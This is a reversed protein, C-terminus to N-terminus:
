GRAHSHLWCVTRLARLVTVFRAVLPMTHPAHTVTRCRSGSGTTFSGYVFTHSGFRTFRTTYVYGTVTVPTTVLRLCHTVFTRCSHLRASGTVAVAVPLLSGFRTTVAPLTRHTFIYGYGVSGYHLSGPVFRTACGHAFRTRLPLWTFTFTDRARTVTRTHTTPYAYVHAYCDLWTVHVLRLDAYGYCGVLRLRTYGCTFQLRHTYGFHLTFGVATRRTAFSSRTHTFWLGHLHTVLDFLWVPVCVLRLRPTRHTVAYCRTHTVAVPTTPVVTDLFRLLYLRLIAVFTRYFTYGFRLGVTVTHTYPTTVTFRLRLRPSGSRLAAYLRLRTRTYRPTVARTFRAHTVTFAFTAVYDLHVHPAVTTRYLHTYLRSGPLPVATVSGTVHTVTCVTHHLLRFWFAAAALVAVYVAAFTTPVTFLRVVLFRLSDVATAHTRHPLRLYFLRTVAATFARRTHVRYLRPLHPVSGHPVLRPVRIRYCVLAYGVWGVAVAFRLVAVCGTVLRAVLLGHAVTDRVRTYFRTVHPPLRLTHTVAVFRIWLVCFRLRLARTVTHM